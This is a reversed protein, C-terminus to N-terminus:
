PAKRSEDCQWSRVVEVLLNDLPTVEGAFKEPTQFTYGYQIGAHRFDRTCVEGDCIAILTNDDANFIYRQQSGDRVLFRNLAPDSSPERRGSSSLAQIHGGLPAGEPGDPTDVWAALVDKLRKECATTARSCGRFAFGGNELEGGALRTPTIDSASPPCYVHAPQGVQYKRDVDGCGALLLLVLSTRVAPHHVLIM